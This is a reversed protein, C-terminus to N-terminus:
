YGLVNLFFLDFMNVLCMVSVMSEAQKLKDSCSIKEEKEM